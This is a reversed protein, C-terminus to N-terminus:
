VQDSYKQERKCLSLYRSRCAVGTLGATNMLKSITRPLTKAGRFGAVTKRLERDQDASWRLRHGGRL